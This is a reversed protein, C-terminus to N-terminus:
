PIPANPEALHADINPDGPYSTVTAGDTFYDVYKTGIIHVEKLNLPPTQAASPPSAQEPSGTAVASSTAVTTTTSTSDVATANDPTTSATPTDDSSPPSSSADVLALAPRVISVGLLALMMIVISLGTVSIANKNMGIHSTM